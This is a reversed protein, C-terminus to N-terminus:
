GLRSARYSEPIGIASVMLALSLPLLRAGTQVASLALVVSLYLPVVFFVGM